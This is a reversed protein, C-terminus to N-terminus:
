DRGGRKPDAAGASAEVSHDLGLRLCTANGPGLRVNFVTVGAHAKSVVPFGGGASLDTVNDYEGKVFVTDARAESVSRNLVVLYREKGGKQQRTVLEFQHSASWATHVGIAMDMARRLVEQSGSMVQDMTTDATLYVKGRGWAASVLNAQEEKIYPVLAEIAVSKCGALGIYPYAAVYRGARKVEIPIDGFTTDILMRSPRGYEDWYGFPGVSVLVGGNAVWELLRTQLTESAWLVYPAFLVKIGSLTEKGSLVLEEPVYTYDYDREELFRHLAVGEEAVQGDPWGVLTADYPALVAIEPRVIKSGLIAEEVPGSTQRRVLPLVGASQHILTLASERTPSFFGHGTSTELWACITTVDWALLRWLNNIGRHILPLGEDRAPDFENAEPNFLYFELSGRPKGLYGALSHAYNLEARDRASGEACDHTCFIDETQALRYTDFPDMGTGNLYSRGLRNAVPHGGPDGTRYAEYIREEHKSYQVKMFRRWESILPLDPELMGSSMKETPPEIEAFSAYPSGWARNLMALSKFKALLEARFLAKAQNGHEFPYIKGEARVAPAPEASYEFLAVHKDGHYLRGLEEYHRAAYQQIYPHFINVPHYRDDKALPVPGLESHASLEPDRALAERFSRSEDNLRVQPDMWRTLLWRLDYHQIEAEQQRGDIKANGQRDFTWQRLNHTFVFDPDLFRAAHFGYQGMRAGIVIHLPFYGEGFMERASSAKAMPAPEPASTGARKVMEKLLGDLRHATETFSRELGVFPPKDSRAAGVSMLLDRGANGDHLYFQWPSDLTFTAGFAGKFREGYFRGLLLLQGRLRMVEERLTAAQQECERLQAGREGASEYFIARDVEGLLGYLYAWQTVLYNHTNGLQILERDSFDLHRWGDFASPDPIKKRQEPARDVLSLQVDDFCIRGRRTVNYLSLALIATAGAPIERTAEYLRFQEEPPRNLEPYNSKWYATLYDTKGGRSYTAIVGPFADRDGKARFTLRLRKGVLAEAPGDGLTHIKTSSIWYTDGEACLAHNGGVDEIITGGLDGRDSLLKWGRDGDEFGGNVVFATETSQPSGARLDGMWGALVAAALAIGIGRALRM